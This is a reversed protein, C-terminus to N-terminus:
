KKMKRTKTNKSKGGGRSATQSRSRVPSPSEMKSYKFSDMMDLLTLNSELTNLEEMKTKDIKKLNKLHEKEILIPIKRQGEVIFATYLNPNTSSIGTIEVLKNMPLVYKVIFTRTSKTSAPKIQPMQYRAAKIVFYFGEM